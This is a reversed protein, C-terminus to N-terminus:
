AEPGLVEVAPDDRRTRAERGLVAQPGLAEAMAGTAAIRWGQEAVAEELAAVANVSEGPVLTHGQDGHLGDDVAVLAVPGAHMAIALKRERPVGKALAIAARLVRLEAPTTLTAADTFVAMLKPGYPLVHTAGFLYLTDRAAQQAQKVREALAADDEGPEPGILDALLLFAQAYHLDTAGNAQSWRKDIERQLHGEYQRGLREKQQELASEVLGSVSSRFAKEQVQRRAIVASVAECLEDPRYPKTLFDDAGATMGQRMYKRDSMATLLIFPVTALRPDARLQSLVEYGTMGPMMVDCVIVDPRQARAADVGAAGDVAERVDHGAKKLAFRAVFRQAEDDEILLVSPM